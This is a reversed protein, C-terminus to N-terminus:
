LLPAKVTVSVAVQYLSVPTPSDSLHLVAMYFSEWLEDGPLLQGLVRPTPLGPLVCCLGHTLSPALAARPCASVKESATAIRTGQLNLAICSLIGEHAPIDVPPKETSALDVLQM